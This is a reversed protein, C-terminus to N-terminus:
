SDSAVGGEGTGLEPVPTLIFPSLTGRGAIVARMVDNLNMGAEISAHIIEAECVPAVTIAATIIDMADVPYKNIAWEVIEACGMVSPCMLTQKLVSVVAEPPTSGQEVLKEIDMTSSITVALLVSFLINV